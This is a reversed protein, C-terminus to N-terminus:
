PPGGGIDAVITPAAINAITSDLLDLADAILVALLILWRRRASRSGPDAPSAHLEPM